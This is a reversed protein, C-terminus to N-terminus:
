EKALYQYIDLMTKIVIPSGDAESCSNETWKEGQDLEFYWYGFWDGEDNFDEKIYDFISNTIVPCFDIVTWSDNFSAFCNELEDQRQYFANLANVFREFQNFTMM